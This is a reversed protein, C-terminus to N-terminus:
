YIIVWGTPKDLCTTMIDAMLSYKTHAYARFNLSLSMDIHATDAARWSESKPTIRPDQVPFWEPGYQFQVVELPDIPVNGKPTQAYWEQGTGKELCVVKSTGYKKKAFGEWDLKNKDDINEVKFPRWAYAPAALRPDVVGVYESGFQYKVVDQVDIPAM